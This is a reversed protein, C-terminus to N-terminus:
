SVPYGNAHRSLEIMLAVLVAASAAAAVFTQSRWHPPLTLWLHYCKPNAKVEFGQLHAAALKQRAQADLRKMTMLAAVTGDAMM